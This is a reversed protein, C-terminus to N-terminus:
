ITRLEIKVEFISERGGFVKYDIGTVCVYPKYSIKALFIGTQTTTRRHTLKKQADVLGRGTKRWQINKKQFKLLKWNKM